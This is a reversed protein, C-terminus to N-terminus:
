TSYTFSLHEVIYPNNNILKTLRWTKLRAKPEKKLFARSIYKEKFNKVYKSNVTRQAKYRSKVKRYFDLPGIAMRTFNGKNADIQNPMPLLDLYVIPSSIYVIKSLICEM